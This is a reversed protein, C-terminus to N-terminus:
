AAQELDDARFLAAKGAADPWRDNKVLWEAVAIYGMRIASPSLGGPIEDPFALLPRKLGDAACVAAFVQGDLEKLCVEYTAGRYRFEHIRLKQKEQGNM